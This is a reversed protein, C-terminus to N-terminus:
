QSLSLQCPAPPADCELPQTMRLLELTATQGLLKGLSNFLDMWAGADAKSM